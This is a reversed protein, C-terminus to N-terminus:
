GDLAIWSPMSSNSFSASKRRLKRVFAINRERSEESFVTGDLVEKIAKVIRSCARRQKSLKRIIL